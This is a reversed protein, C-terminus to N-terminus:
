KMTANVRYKAPTSHFYDLQGIKLNLEQLLLEDAKSTIGGRILKEKRDILDVAETKAKDPWDKAKVSDRMVDFAKVVNKQKEDMDDPKTPFPPVTV